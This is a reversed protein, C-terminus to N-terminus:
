VTGSPFLSPSENYLMQRVNNRAGELSLEKKIVRQFNVIMNQSHKGLKQISSSWKFPNQMWINYMITMLSDYACSYNVCDWLLGIPAKNTRNIELCTKKKTSCFLPDDADEYLKRKLTDKIPVTGKASIFNPLASQKGTQHKTQTTKNEILKWPSDIVQSIIPMPNQADLKLPADVNVPCYQKGKLDRYQDIIVNRLKGNVKSSLKNNFRLATIEDLLELERFEQRLYGSAGRTIKNVDFGQLIVTGSASSGHSLATYYAMHSKCSMPDVVNIDRTKGQSAYDTMAFNPLISVQSRSISINVDSPTECIINKSSRTLPVINEPLGELQIAKAPRDLKVFLTDLILQGNPGKASQWGAVHGEQGKTICLETADNNRIMVPLGICLSLKGPVHDSASHQLNWLM